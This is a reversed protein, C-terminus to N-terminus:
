GRRGEPEGGGIDTNGQGKGPEHKRGLESIKLVVSQPEVISPYVMIHFRWTNLANEVETAYNRGKLFLCVTERSVHPYSYDCLTVLGSCARSTIMDPNVGRVQEVRTHHLQVKVGTVRAAERLFTIKKHDSEVLHVDKVGAIALVMGPFGAGSGIDMVSVDLTPLLPLLQLSDLMHRRWVDKITDPGVLNVSRQWKLLLDCYANLKAYTERSVDVHSNLLDFHADPV